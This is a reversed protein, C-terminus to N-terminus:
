FNLHTFFYIHYNNPHPYVPSLGTKRKFWSVGKIGRELIFSNIFTLEIFLPLFPM